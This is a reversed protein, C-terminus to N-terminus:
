INGFGGRKTQRKTAPSRRFKACGSEDSCWYNQSARLAGCSPCRSGSRIFGLYVVLSSETLKDTTVIAWDDTKKLTTWKDGVTATIAAKLADTPTKYDDGVRVKPRFQLIRTLKSDAGRRLLSGVVMMSEVKGDETAM